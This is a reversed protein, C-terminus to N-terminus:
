PQRELVRALARGPWGTPRRRSTAIVMRTPNLAVRWLSARRRAVDDRRDVMDTLAAFSAALLGAAVLRHALLHDVGFQAGVVRTDPLGTAALVFPAAVLLAVAPAWLLRRRPSFLWWASELIFAVAAGFGGFVFWAAAPFLLSLLLAKGLPRTGAPPRPAPDDNM